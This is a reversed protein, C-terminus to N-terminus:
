LRLRRRRGSFRRGARFDLGTLDRITNNYEVRNLRRMTVRGPDRARGREAAAVQREIWAVLSELQADDPRAEGEPPMDGDRLREAITRWRAHDDLLM